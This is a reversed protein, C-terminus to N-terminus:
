AIGFDVVKITEGVPSRSLLINAPKIDRHVIGSRHAHVLVDCVPCIIEAVRALPMVGRQELEQQLNPGELMEMVLYPVGATTSGSDLIAVANPHKVRCGSVGEQQFRKLALESEVLHAHLVKIAVEKDLAVHHARYVTGFGGSGLSEDLRYKGGGLEAGP